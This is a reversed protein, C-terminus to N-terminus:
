QVTIKQYCIGLCLWKLNEVESNYFVLFVTGCWSKILIESIVEIELFKKPAKMKEPFNKALETQVFQDFDAIYTPM